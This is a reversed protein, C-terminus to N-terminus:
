IKNFDKSFSFLAFNTTFITVKAEHISFVNRHKSRCNFFNCFLNGCSKSYAAFTAIFVAAITIMKAVKAVKENKHFCEQFKHSPVELFTM